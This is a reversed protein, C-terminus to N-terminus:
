RTRRFEPEPPLGTLGVVRRLYISSGVPELVLAPEIPYTVDPSGAFYVGRDLNDEIIELTSKWDHLGPLTTIPTRRTEINYNQSLWLGYDYFQWEDIYRYILPVLPKDTSMAYFLGLSYTGPTTLVLSGEPLSMLEQKYTAAQPDATTLINANLFVGNVLILAVAGLAIVYKYHSSIKYLGLGCLICLAPSALTIFTWAAPDLNTGYYWLTLLVIGSLLVTIKTIPKRWSSVVPILALGFSAIMLSSLILLRTPAESLSLQGLIAGTTVTWYFQISHLNLGGALLRPTDMFMLLLIFSYSVGVITIFLAAPKLWQRWERWEVIMWAIALTGVFVHVATGLGLLIVTQWKNGKVYAYLTGTLFMTAIAYEELVTSQSLFVASGLLVLASVLAISSKNTLHKVILYVLAVTIASPLCSLLITINLPQSGPLLGILRCLIIYLPSGYPQPTMWWNACALWDGSDGSLFVWTFTKASLITYYAFAFLGILLPVYKKSSKDRLMYTM